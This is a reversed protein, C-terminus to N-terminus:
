PSPKILNAYPGPHSDPIETAGAITRYYDPIKTAGIIAYAYGAERMALLCALTLATGIGKGRSSPAIGLPGFFGRFTADYCAFGVPRTGEAAIFCSIPHGGFSVACEGRWGTGFADRVFDLVAEREPARARRISIDASAPLPTPLPPLDYLKVLLDNM